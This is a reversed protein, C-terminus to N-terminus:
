RRGAGDAPLSADIVIDKGIVAAEGEVPQEVAQGRVGAPRHGGRLGLDQLVLPVQHHEPVPAAHVEGADGLAPQPLGRFPPGGIIQGPAADPSVADGAAASGDAVVDAAQHAQRLRQPHARVAALMRGRQATGVHLREQVPQGIQLRGPLDATVGAEPGAALDPCTSVRARAIPSVRGPPDRRRGPRPSRWGADAIDGDLGLGALGPRSRGGSIM